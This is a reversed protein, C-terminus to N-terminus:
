VNNLKIVNLIKVKIVQSGNFDIWKIDSLSKLRKQLFQQTEYFVFEFLYVNGTYMSLVFHYVSLIKRNTQILIYNYIDINWCRQEKSHLQYNMYNVCADKDDNFM